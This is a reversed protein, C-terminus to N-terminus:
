ALMLDSSIQLSFVGMEIRVVNKLMAVSSCREIKPTHPWGSRCGAEESLMSRVNARQVKVFIVNIRWRKSHQDSGALKRVGKMDLVGFKRLM